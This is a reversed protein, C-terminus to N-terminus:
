QQKAFEDMFYNCSRQILDGYEAIDEISAVPIKWHMQHKNKVTNLRADDKIEEADKSFFRLSIWKSKLGLHVRCFDFNDSLFISLYDESRRELHLDNLPFGTDQLFGSIIKLAREEDESLIIPQNPSDFSNTLSIKGDLLAFEIGKM